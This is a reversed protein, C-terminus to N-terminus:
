GQASVLWCAGNFRAVGNQVFPDFAVRVAAAIQARQQEDVESLALGVPGLRTVYVLLDKQAVCTPVDMPRIDVNKWGSAELIRQVRAADAFGFQGPAGPDPARLSPLYPAAARSATTMFPNEAPGRWAVFSLRAGARTARRINAFAAEPDDFFMVGFRSIVLDFSHPEFAYTQADAEIFVANDVGEATARRTAAEVLPASIDVGVCLGGRGLRRAASLTTSGAGCGIDLVRGKPGPLSHELLLASFPELMGDLIDQMEVWARGSTENWLEAQEKNAANVEPMLPSRIKRGDIASQM